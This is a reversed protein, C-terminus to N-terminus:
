VQVLFADTYRLLSATLAERPQAKSRFHDAKIRVAQGAGQVLARHPSVENGLLLPLGVVGEDGVVAVEALRGGDEAALLSVLGSCPFYAYPIPQGADHLIEGLILPVRELSPLLQEHDGRPLSSLTWNNGPEPISPEKGGLNCTAPLRTNDRLTARQKRCRLYAGKLPQLRGSFQLTIGEADPLPASCTNGSWVVRFSPRVIGRPSFVLYVSFCFRWASCM